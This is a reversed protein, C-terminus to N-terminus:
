NVTLSYAATHVTSGGTATVTVTYTGAPTGTATSGAGGDGGGGCGALVTATVLLLWTALLGRHPRKSAATSRRRVWAIPVGLGALLVGGRWLPDLPDRGISNMASRVTTAITLTSTVAASGSAAVTAPSFSCTAGAPLGSCAFTVSQAFGGSPTVALTTQASQGASASGSTPTLGLAFDAAAVATVQVAVTASASAVFSTSGGYSVTLSHAGAALSSTTFVAKGTGDLVVSGLATAGDNFTATGAPIATGSAAVVTATLTLTQGAPISAASAVLTTTTAVTTAAAASPALFLLNGALLDIKGDGNFDAALMPGLATLNIALGPVTSGSSVLTQLTGDGNGLSIGAATPDYPNDLAVDLKGDGNFDGLAIAQSNNLYQATYNTLVPANFTGDGKGTVVAVQAKYTTSSGLAVIDANGDGNMDGVVITAPVRGAMLDTAAVTALTSFTGDGHGLAVQMTARYGSLNSDLTATQALLVLDPNGDKNFDATTAVSLVLPTGAGSFQLNPGSYSPIQQPARFTGDGVGLQVAVGADVYTASASALFYAYTYSYLLDAKGDHNVDVLRLNSITPYITYAGALSSPVTPVGYFTPAAFGGQGNGLAIFVGTGGSGNPIGNLTPAIYVLDPIGDGNIDGLAYSDIRQLPYSTGAIVIPSTALTGKTTFGGHGDGLYSTFSLDANLGVADVVRDGDLDALNSGTDAFPLRQVGQFTGDGNGMLAYARSVAFQDAGFLGGNAQGVFLDVKGDGDLDTATIYGVSGNSAYVKGAAFTGDGRGLYIFIADGTSVALDPTGDGNFDGAALNPGFSSTATVPPFAVPATTFTGDGHNLLVVGNTAVIDLKGTRRLDSAVLNAIQVSSGLSTTAPTTVAYTVAANLTGDGKGTLVSITEQGSASRTAVIVDAKGDGNVDAVLAAETTSGTLPYTTATGLTGNPNVLWVRIAASTADIGVIDATGDGNLDGAAVAAIGPLTSDAGFHNVVMTSPDVTGFFLGNSGTLGNFGSSAFIGLSGTKGLYVLRRSGIGLTPEVCGRAFVDGATTLGASSHLVRQYNAVSSVAQFTPSNGLVLNGTLLTLSCDTQRQLALGQGSTAVIATTNGVFSASTAPSVAAQPLISQITQRAVRAAKALRASLPMASWEPHLESQIERLVAIRQEITFDPHQRAVASIKAIDISDSAVILAPVAIAAAVPLCCALLSLSAFTLRVRKPLPSTM